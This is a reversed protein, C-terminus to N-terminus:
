WWADGGGLGCRFQIDAPGLHVVTRAHDVNADDELHVSVGRFSLEPAQVVVRAMLRNEGRLM